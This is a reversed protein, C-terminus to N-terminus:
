PHTAQSATPRPTNRGSLCCLYLAADPQWSMWSRGILEKLPRFSRFICLDFVDLAQLHICTVQIRPLFLVRSRLTCYLTRYDQTKGPSM